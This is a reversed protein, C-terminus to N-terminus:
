EDAIALKGDRWLGIRNRGANKAYYLAKDARELAVKYERGEFLSAIGISVTFRIVTDKYHFRHKEIIKRLREAFRVAHYKKRNPTIVIFEEGGFRGIVDIERCGDNLLKGLEKLVGDGALHSYTDNIKKFHDIDIFLISTRGGYRKIRKYEGRIHRLITKKNYVGTLADVAADKQLKKNEAALNSLALNSYEIMNKHTLLGIIRSGAVVPLRKIGRENFVAVAESFDIDPPITVLPSAMFDSAKIKDPDVTGKRFLSVFSRETIIGVPKQRNIVILCGIHERAIKEACERASTETTVTIVHRHMVDAISFAAEGATRKKHSIVSKKLQINEQILCFKDM